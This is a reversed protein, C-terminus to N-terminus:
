RVAAALRAPEPPTVHGDLGAAHRLLMGFLDLHGERASGIEIFDLRTSTLGHALRDRVAAPVGVGAAVVDSPVPGISVLARVPAREFVRRLAQSHTAIIDVEGSAMAAAAAAHSGCFRQSGFLADPDVGFSELYLRPLDYGTTSIRSVWGMRHGALDALGHIGRRGVLVSSRAGTGPCGVTCLSTALHMRELVFAVYSPAWTIVDPSREFIEPLLAAYSLRALNLTLGTRREVTHVLEGLMDPSVHASAPVLLTIPKMTPHMSECQLLDTARRRQFCHADDPM